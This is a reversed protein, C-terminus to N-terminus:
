LLHRRKAIMLSKLAKEELKYYNYMGSLSTYTLHSKCIVVFLSLLIVDQDRRTSVSKREVKKM